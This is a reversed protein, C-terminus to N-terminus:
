PESAAKATVAAARAARGVEGGGENGVGNDPPRLLAEFAAAPASPSRGVLRLETLARPFTMDRLPVVAIHGLTLQDTASARSVIAIGLGASVAQKIAETSGLQITAGPHVGHEALASEAVVRTGSGPERLIFPEGALDAVVVRKRRALRHTAPAIVVLDDERWPLVSIREHAVPGEVLAVDLRGELLKRAIARTNASLVRLTVGPHARHFSALLPPLFYTAVTTSAGVRLVGRELGRLADLDQEALREVGFLERARALLAMGPETLRPSRGSRDFLPLGVEHELQQVTKSVAPQSLRLVAAARSFGGHEAVAAFIRLHHLNM